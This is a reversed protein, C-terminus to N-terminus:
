ISTTATARTSASRMARSAGAYPHVWKARLVEDVEDRTSHEAFSGCVVFPRPDLCDGDRTWGCVTFEVRDDQVDGGATLVLVEKPIHDLDWEEARAALAGEDVMSPTSWGEALLTNTFAQLQSFEGKAELFQKALASWTANPVLSVLANLRFGAHGKVEPKTIRWHGQTVMGHKFREEIQEKCHPCEFKAEDPREAIVQNNGDVEKPWVIHAWKIETFAGCSPCPVEFVRQDSNGYARLVHSTDVFVPTSGIIIKRNAFTMTRNEGLMIPDGEAGVEMADAEDVMLIRATHARLNRPAKAAVVKLSGGAFRRTLLTNREGVEGSARLAGSLAPSAEFIPEVDMVMYRRCDDETPMLALIPSPENVIYSGLAGTLLTTFGVRAAKVM